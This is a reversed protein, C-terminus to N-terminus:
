HKEKGYRCVKQCETCMLHSNETFSPEYKRLKESKEFREKATIHLGVMCKSEDVRYPTLAGMPCAKLCSDCDGCLDQEFPKDAVLQANTLVATLRIWSGYVPNIILSNKGYNGFGALQALRKFSLASPSAVKYGNKELHDAVAQATIALSLHSPYVWREERKIALDLMNDWIHIGIVVVSKVDALIDVTKKTYRQLHWGVWIRPFSDVVDSSVIGVLSAGSDLAIKKIESTLKNAKSNAGLKPAWKHVDSISM